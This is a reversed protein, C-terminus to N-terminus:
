KAPTCYIFRPQYFQQLPPFIVTLTRVQARAQFDDLVEFQWKTAYIQGSLAATSGPDIISQDSWLSKSLFNYSTQKGNLMSPFNWHSASGFWYLPEPPFTVQDDWDLLVLYFILPFKPDVIYIIYSRYIIYREYMSIGHVGLQSLPGVKQHYPHRGSGWPDPWILSKTSTAAEWFKCTTSCLFLVPQSPTPIIHYPLADANGWSTM